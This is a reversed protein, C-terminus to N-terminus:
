QRVDIEFAPRPEVLNSVRRWPGNVNSSTDNILLTTNNTISFDDLAYNWQAVTNAAAPAIVLWYRGATLTPRQASFVHIPSDVTITPSGTRINSVNVTEVVAGPSGNNDASISINVGNQGSQWSIPVQIHTLTATGTVSFSVAYMRRNATGAGSIIVGNSSICDRDYYYTTSGPFLAQQCKQNTFFSPGFNSFVRIDCRGNDCCQGEIPHVTMGAQCSYCLPCTSVNFTSGASINQNTKVDHASVWLSHQGPPVYYLTSRPFYQFNSGNYRGMDVGDLSIGDIWAQGQETVEIPQPMTVNTSGDKPQVITISSCATLITVGALALLHLFRLNM